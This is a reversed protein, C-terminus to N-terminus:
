EKQDLVIRAAARKKDAALELAFAAARLESADVKGRVADDAVARMTAVAADLGKAMAQECLALTVRTLHPMAQKSARSFLEDPTM